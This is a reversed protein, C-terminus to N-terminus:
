VAANLFEDKGKKALIDYSNAKEDEDFLAGYDNREPVGPVNEGPRSSERNEALSAYPNVPPAATGTRKDSERVHRDVSGAVDPRVIQVNPPAAALDVAHQRSKHEEHLADLVATAATDVSVGAFLGERYERELRRFRARKRAAERIHEQTTGRLQDHEALCIPRDHEDCVWVADARDAMVRLWVDRGQLTWLREAWKGYCIGQWRVGNRSVKVPGVRRACLYDAAIPDVVARLAEAKFREMAQSPSLGYMGDGQKPEAHFADVFKPFAERVEDLTPCDMVGLDKLDEPKDEPRGGTYSPWLKDFERHVARFHSEIMKSWSSYPIAWTISISMQGFVGEFCAADFDAWKKRKQTEANKRKGAAAKYDRGNDCYVQNPPGYTCIGAKFASLITDTNAWEGVHWGVWSRSRVDLWATLKPRIRRWGHPQKRDPVRCFLDLTCEDGCWTHNSPVHSYDREIRPVCKTELARAGERGAVVVPKPLKEIRLLCARYGLWAWGRLRAERKTLKWCTRATLRNEDLYLTCFHRWAEPSCQERGAQEIGRRSVQSRVKQDPQAADWKMLRRYLTWPKLVGFGLEVSRVKAFWEIAAMRGLERVKHALERSAAECVNVWRQAEDRQKQPYESLDEVPRATRRLEVVAPAAPDFVYLGRGLKRALGSPALQKYLRVLHRPSVDLAAGHVWARQRGTASQLQINLVTSM